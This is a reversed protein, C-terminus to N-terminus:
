VHARGIEFIINPLLPEKILKRNGNIIKVVYHMPLYTEVNKAQFYGLAKETRGYTARLVFWQKKEKPVCNSSVGTQSNKTEQGQVEPSTSSTLGASSPNKGGRRTDANLLADM